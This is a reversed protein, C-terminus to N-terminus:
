VRASAGVYLPSCVVGGGSVVEARLQDALTELDFQGERVVGTRLGLPWVSKLTNAVWSYAPSTSGGAVIVEGNLVPDAMGAARFTAHLERAMRAKAGSARFAAVIADVVEHWLSLPPDAPPVVDLDLEHFAVIGGARVHRSVRRLADVPDAQYMLVFRGAVADFQQYLEVERCDGHVFRLQTLGAAEARDAALALANADLDVGVVQGTPGVLDGLLMSFDGVGCGVDLVTMGAEIGAHELVRRSLPAVVAAQEMLRDYEEADRNLAYEPDDPSVPTLLRSAGEGGTTHEAERLMTIGRRSTSWGGDFTDVSTRAAMRDVVLM